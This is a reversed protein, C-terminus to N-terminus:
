PFRITHFIRLALEQQADDLDQGWLCLKNSDATKKFYIGTVGHGPTRPHVVKARRGGINEQAVVYEPKTANDLPSSYRGYDFNLVTGGGAFEGVYSDIGQKKHFEWGPPAYISFAGVELKIWGKDHTELRTPFSSCAVTLLSVLVFMLVIARLM